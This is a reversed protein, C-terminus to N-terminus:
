LHERDAAACMSPVGLVAYVNRKDVYSVDQNNQDESFVNDFTFDHNEIYKTLDFKTRCVASTLKTQIPHNRVSFHSNVSKM